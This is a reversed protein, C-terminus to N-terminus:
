GGSFLHMVVPRGGIWGVAETHIRSTSLGGTVGATPAPPVGGRGWMTCVGRALLSPLGAGVVIDSAAEPNIGLHRRVAEAQEPRARLVFEIEAFTLVLPDAM